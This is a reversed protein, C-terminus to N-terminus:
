TEKKTRLILGVLHSCPRNRASFFLKGRQKNNNKRESQLLWRVDTGAKKRSVAKWRLGLGAIGLLLPEQLQQLVADRDELRAALRTAQRTRRSRVPLPALPKPTTMPSWPGQPTFPVFLHPDAIQNPTPNAKETPHTSFPPFPFGGNPSDGIKLSGVLQCPVRCPRFPVFLHPPQDFPEHYMPGNPFVVLIIHGVHSFNGMTM